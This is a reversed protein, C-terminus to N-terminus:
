LTDGEIGATAIAVPVFGTGVEYRLGRVAKRVAEALTEWSDVGAGTNIVGSLNVDDTGIKMLEM